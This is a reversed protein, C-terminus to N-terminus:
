RRGSAGDLVNCCTVLVAVLGAFAKLVNIIVNRYYSNM